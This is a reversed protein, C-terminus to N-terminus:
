VRQLPFSLEVVAGERSSFSVKGGIQESLTSVLLMGLNTPNNEERPEPFGPGHDRVTLTANGADSGMAINVRAVGDPSKGYKACNTLLENVILALPVAEELTLVLQEAQVDIVLGAYLNRTVSGLRELFDEMNIEAITESQYMMEHVTSMAMIRNELQLSFDEISSSNQQELHLLSLILQMNNKVRHHVEKLLTEREALAESLIREAKDREFNREELSNAMNDIAEAVQGVESESDVIGTRASLDGERIQKVTLILSKLKRGLSIHGLVSSIVISLLAAAAILIINRYLISLSPRTANREPIGLVIYLYPDSEPSLRIKRYAYFRRIGDSGTDVLTGSDATNQLGQWVSQKIPKGVPNTKKRPHFFIRIGQFDTIGLITEEPLELRDFITRYVSLRYVATLVGIIEGERSRLPLAFPFSQEQDVYAIIFEGAVFGKGALAERIHRRQSLDIGTELNPSASARVRGRTDVTSINVFEPNKKLLDGIVMNQTEYDGDTFSPLISLTMLTQYVSQSIVRQVMSLTEVQRFAEDRVSEELSSGHEVGTWIIIVLAPVLSLVVIVSFLTKFSSFHFKKLM